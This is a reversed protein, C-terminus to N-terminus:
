GVRIACGGRAGLVVTAVSTEGPRLALDATCRDEPPDLQACTGLCPRQFSLLHYDGAPLRRDLLPEDGRVERGDTVPGAFLPTGGEATRLELFAVSGEVYVPGPPLRERVILRAPGGSAAEDDGCGGAVAACAALAGLALRAGNM